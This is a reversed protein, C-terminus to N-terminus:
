REYALRAEGESGFPGIELSIKAKWADGIRNVGECNNNQHFNQHNPGHIEQKGNRRMRVLMSHDVDSTSSNSRLLDRGLVNVEVDPLSKVRQLQMPNANAVLNSPMKTQQNAVVSQAFDLLDPTSWTKGMVHQHMSGLGDPSYNSNTTNGVSFSNSHPLHYCPLMQGQTVDRGKSIGKPPPLKPLPKKDLPSVGGNKQYEEEYQHIPFNTLTGWGNIMISHWDHARAAEEVTGYAGVSTNVRNHLVSARFKGDSAKMVGRFDALDEWENPSYVMQQFKSMSEQPFNLKKLAEGDNTYRLLAQDWAKAAEEQSGFYGVHRTRDTHLRARWRNGKADYQIGRYSTQIRGNRGDAGSSDIRTFTRVDEECGSGGMM